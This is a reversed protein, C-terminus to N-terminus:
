CSSQQAPADQRMALEALGDMRRSADQWDPTSTGLPPSEGPYIARRTTPGSRENVSDRTRGLM